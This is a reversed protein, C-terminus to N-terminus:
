PGGTRRNEAPRDSALCDAHGKLCVEVTRISSPAGAKLALRCILLWSCCGYSAMHGGLRFGRRHRVDRCLISDIAERSRTSKRGRSTRNACESCFRQTRLRHRTNGVAPLRSAFSPADHDRERLNSHRRSSTGIVSRPGSHGRPGQSPGSNNQLRGPLNEPRLRGGIFLGERRNPQV